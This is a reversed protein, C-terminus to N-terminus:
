KPSTWVLKGEENFMKAVYPLESLFKEADEIAQGEGGDRFEKVEGDQLQLCIARFMDASTPNASCGGYEWIRKVSPHSCVLQEVTVPKREIYTM